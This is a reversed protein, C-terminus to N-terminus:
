EKLLKVTLVEGDLTAEFGAEHLEIVTTKDLVDHSNVTPITGVVSLGNEDRVLKFSPVIDLIRYTFVEMVKLLSTAEAITLELETKM